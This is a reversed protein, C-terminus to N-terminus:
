VIRDLVTELARATARAGAAFDWASSARAGIFNSIGRIEIAPVGALAAARLVSFGEMSEVDTAYSTRLHLATADTTTVCSVTLGRGLHMDAPVLSACRSLLGADSRVRDVLSAGDPLALSGGGELGFNAFVEEAILVAEGVAAVERYAGGIGASVVATYRNRALAAATAISAEVPGVGCALIAVDPRVRVYRLEASLACVVLVV